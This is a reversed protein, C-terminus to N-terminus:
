SKLIFCLTHFSEFIFLFRSDKGFIQFFFIFIFFLNKSPFVQISKGGKKRMYEGKLLVFNKTILGPIKQALKSWIFLHDTAISFCLFARSTVLLLAFVEQRSLAFVKYNETRLNWVLLKYRHTHKVSHGPIKCIFVPLLKVNNCTLTSKQRNLTVTQFPFIKSFELFVFVM